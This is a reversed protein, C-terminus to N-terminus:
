RPDQGGAGRRRERRLPSGGLRARSCVGLAGPLVHGLRGSVRVAPPAPGLHRRPFDLPWARLSMSVIPEPLSAALQDLSASTARLASARVEAVMRTAADDNLPKAEHEMPATPMGPEILEIRRRDVVEHGASATVAVAWGLHHAIGVRVGGLIERGLDLTGTRGRRRQRRRNLCRDSGM